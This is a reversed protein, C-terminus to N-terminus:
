KVTRPQVLLAIHRAYSCTEVRAGNCPPPNGVRGACFELDIELVAQKTVIQRSPSQVHQQPVSLTASVAPPVPMDGQSHRQHQIPLLVENVDLRVARPPRDQALLAIVGQRRRVRQWMQFM